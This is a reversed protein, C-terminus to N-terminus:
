GGLGSQAISLITDVSDASLQYIATDGDLRAYRGSGDMSSTGITLTMTQEAGTDTLYIVEAQAAPADFGCISAARDSPRYDVCKTFTLLELESLLNKVADSGSVDEGDCMWAEAAGSGTRSATITTEASGTICVSCITRDTLAPPVPLEMMDYIAVSLKDVLAGDFIYLTSPDDDKLAYYSKGDTTTKGFTLRLTTGDARTASLFVSETDLNYDELSGSPALTQQPKLDTLLACIEEVTTDNLPFSPDDTWIWQDSEPDVSFSLTTTGNSYSLAAWAHDSNASLQVTDEPVAQSQRYQHYRVGGVLLVLIVLVLLISSLVSIKRRQKWDMEM